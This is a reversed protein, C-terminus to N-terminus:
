TPQNGPNDKATLRFLKMESLREVLEIVHTARITTKDFSVFLAYETEKKRTYIDFGSNEYVSFELNKPKYIYTDSEEKKPEFQDPYQSLISSVDEDRVLCRTTDLLCLNIYGREEDDLVQLFKLFVEFSSTFFFPSVTVLLESRSDSGRSAKNSSKPTYRVRVGQTVIEKTSDGDNNRVFSYNIGNNELYEIIKKYMADIDYKIPAGDSSNYEDYRSFQGYAVVTDLPFSHSAEGSNLSLLQQYDDDTFSETFSCEFQKNIVDIFNNLSDVSSINFGQLLNLPARLGGMDINIGVPIVRINKSYAYGAEFFIWGSKVSSPTVFVFMIAASELGEEVKHVWNTGFPISQGDSSMFIDIANGTIGKIRNQIYLVVDKDKSTHSFFVVSKSM